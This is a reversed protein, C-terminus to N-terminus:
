TEGGLLARVVTITEELLALKAPTAAGVQAMWEPAGHGIGAVLRGPFVRALAALEMALLAPNRLPAPVIGIGVRLRETATLALAASSMSGAWSLDEVLWLDDLGCREADRAFDRLEEPRHGRDFMVGLRPRQAGSPSDSTM